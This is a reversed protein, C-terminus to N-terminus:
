PIPAERAPGVFQIYLGWGKISSASSVIDPDSLNVLTRGTSKTLHPSQGKSFVIGKGRLEDYTEQVDDVKFAIHIVGTYDEGHHATVPHLDFIPQNNGPLKLEATGEHHSTRRVLKFGMKQFVETAEDVDRVAIDIHDIGKIM